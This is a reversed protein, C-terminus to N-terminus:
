HCGKRWARVAEADVELPGEHDQLTSLLGGKTHDDICVHGYEHAAVRWLRHLSNPEQRNRAIRIDGRSEAGNVICEADPPCIDKVHDREPLDDVLRFHAEESFLAEEPCDGTAECWADVADRLAERQELSFSSDISYYAPATSGCAGLFLVFLFIANKM